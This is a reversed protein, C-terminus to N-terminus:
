LKLRGAVFQIASQIEPVRLATIALGYIIGGLAIGGLTVIWRALSGTAQIWFWVGIGM